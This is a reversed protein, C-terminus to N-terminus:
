SPVVAVAQKNGQAHQKRLYAVWLFIGPVGVLSPWLWRIAIPLFKFNVASFASVTAIYSGLMGGMHSYLWANKFAPPKLFRVIDSAAIVIGFSGFVFSVAPAPMFQGPLPHFGLAILGISGVLTLIAAIWDIATPGANKRLVKRYGGFAFYFSFVAVLGLFLIPRYIAMYMATIAVIAMMWFYIRGWRRHAVSGKVTVMAAPAMFIAIMGCVIHLVRVYPFWSM